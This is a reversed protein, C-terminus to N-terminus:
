YRKRTKADRGYFGRFHGDDFWEAFFLSPPSGIRLWLLYSSSSDLEDDSTPKRM